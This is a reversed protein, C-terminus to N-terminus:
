FLSPSEERIDKEIDQSKRRSKRSLFRSISPPTRTYFKTSNTSLASKSIMASPVTRSISSNVIRRSYSKLLAEEIWDNSEKSVEDASEIQTRSRHQSVM